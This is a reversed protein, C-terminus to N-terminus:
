ADAERKTDFTRTAVVLRGSKLFARFRGGPTKHVSM